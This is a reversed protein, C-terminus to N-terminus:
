RSKGSALAPAQGLEWDKVLLGGAALLQAIDNAEAATLRATKSLNPPDPLRLYLATLQARVIDGDDLAKAVAALGNVKRSLDVPVGYLASLDRNLDAM